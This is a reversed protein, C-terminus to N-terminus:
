FTSGNQESLKLMKKITTFGILCVEFMSFCMFCKNKSFILFDVVKKKYIGFDFQENKRFMAFYRKLISPNEYNQIKTNNM